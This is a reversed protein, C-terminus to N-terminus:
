GWASLGEIHDASSIGEALSPMQKQSGHLIDDRLVQIRGNPLTRSRLRGSRAWSRITQESRIGILRKAETTGVWLSDGHSLTEAVEHIRDAVRNADLVDGMAGARLEVEIARLEDLAHRLASM